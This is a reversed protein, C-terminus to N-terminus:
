LGNYNISNKFIKEDIKGKKLKLSSNDFLLKDKTHGFSINKIDLIYKEM